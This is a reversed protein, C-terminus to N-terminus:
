SITSPISSLIMIMDRFCSYNLQNNNKLLLIPHLGQEIQILTEDSLKPMKAKILRAYLAKARIIDIDTIFLGQKGSTQFQGVMTEIFSIKSQADLYASVLKFNM